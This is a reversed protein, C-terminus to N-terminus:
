KDERAEKKDERVEAIHAQHRCRRRGAHLRGRRQEQPAQKAPQKDDRQKRRAQEESRQKEDQQDQQPYALTATGFLVFLVATSTVAIRRM